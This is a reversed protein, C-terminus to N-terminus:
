IGVPVQAGSPRRAVPAPLELRAHGAANPPTPSSHTAWAHPDLFLGQLSNALGQVGLGALRGAALEIALAIGDLRRCIEAVYPADADSIQYGGLAFAAREEFM